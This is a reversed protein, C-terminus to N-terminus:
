SRPAAPPSIGPKRRMLIRTRRAASQGTNHLGWLQDYDTDNPTLDVSLLYDVEHRIGVLSLETKAQELEAENAFSFLRWEMGPQPSRILFRSRRGNLVTLAQNRDLKVLLRHSATTIAATEVSLESEPQAHLASNLTMFAGLVTLCCTRSFRNLNFM